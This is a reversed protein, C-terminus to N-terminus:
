IGRRALEDEIRQQRQGHRRAGHSVFGAAILAVGAIVFRGTSGDAILHHALNAGFANYNTLAELYPDLFDRLQAPIALFTAGGLVLLPGTIWAGLSSGRLALIVFLLVVLGAVFEILAAYNLVGTEWPANSALTLRAGADTLLYWAVPTLILISLASWWHAGARSPAKEYQAYDPYPDEAAVPVPTPLPLASTNQEPAEPRLLSTRRVITDTIEPQPAALDENILTPRDVAITPA